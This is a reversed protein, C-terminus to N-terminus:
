RNGHYLPNLTVKTKIIETKITELNERIKQIKINKAENVKKSLNNVDETIIPILKNFEIYNYSNEIIIEKLDKLRVLSVSYEDAMLYAQIEEILKPASSLESVTLINEIKDVTSTIATKTLSINKKVSIIQIVGVGIAYVSAFSGLLSLLNLLNPRCKLFCFFVVITLILGIFFLWITLGKINKITMLIKKVKDIMIFNKLDFHM